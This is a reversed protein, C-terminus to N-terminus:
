AMRLGKSGSISNPIRLTAVSSFHISIAPYLVSPNTLTVHVMQNNTNNINFSSTLNTPSKVSAQLGCGHARDCITWKSGNLLFVKKWRSILGVNQNEAKDDATLFAWSCRVLCMKASRSIPKALAQYPASIETEWSLNAHRLIACPKKDIMKQRLTPQHTEM